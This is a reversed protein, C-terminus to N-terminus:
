ESIVSYNQRYPVPKYCSQSISYRDKQLHEQWGIWQSLVLFIFRVCCFCVRMWLLIYLM